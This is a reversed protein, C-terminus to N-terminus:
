KRITKVLRLTQSLDEKEIKLFYIGQPLKRIKANNIVIENGKPTLSQEFVLRGQADYLHIQISNYVPNSLKLIIKDNFFTSSSISFLKDQYQNEETLQSREFKLIFADSYYDPCGGCTGQYFAGGGPNFTPFDNSWTSGTLFVNGNGDTTISRGFDTTDGGYYTAWLRVGSNNFKLIFADYAGAYTGQYYAGGGPNFTPFVNSWTGGTLFVNGMGDTTISFGGDGRNGGYYTAWLLSLPPDIVLAEKSLDETAEFKIVGDELKYGLDVRRGTSVEHALLEGDEIEGLPTRLVLRKGNKIELDAYKVRFRIQSIDYGEKVWFEHHLTNGDYRWVWDVGPYIEKVRVERYTPVFLIGDPCHSYYYNSYGPLPDSFEIDRWSQNAGLFEINIRAYHVKVEESEKLADKELFRKGFDRDGEKGEFRYIVFSVGGERVFVSFDKGRSYFLVDQVPNGEFDALQGYNPEFGLYNNNLNKLYSDLEMSYLHFTFLIAGVIGWKLGILKGSMISVEKKHDGWPLILTYCRDQEMVYVEIIGM